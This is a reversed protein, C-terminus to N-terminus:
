KNSDATLRVKTEKSEVTVNFLCSENEVIPVNYELNLHMQGLGRGKTLVEVQKHVPVQSM